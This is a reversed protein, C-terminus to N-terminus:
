EFLSGTGATTGGALLVHTNRAVEPFFLRGPIRIGADSYSFITVASVRPHFSPFFTGAGCIRGTENCDISALVQDLSVHQKLFLVSSSKVLM